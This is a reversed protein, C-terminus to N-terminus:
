ATLKRIALELDDCPVCITLECSGCKSLEIYINDKKDDLTLKLSINEEQCYYNAEINM